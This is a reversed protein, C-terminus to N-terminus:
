VHPVAKAVRASARSKISLVVLLVLGYEILLRSEAVSQVALATMLLIPLLSVATYRSSHGHADIPRDIAFIWSRVTTSVVLAAFVVLGVFGLQLWIDLWANHAHLQRVGSKFILDNFPEVWPAWFSVWGWGFAPRQHALGIVANWIDLRGTLDESKGLAALVVNRALFAIVGLVAVLASLGWYIRARRGPSATRRVLLLAGVLSSIVVIAITITASRTFFTMSAALGLWAFGWARGVSRDALQIGFVILAVLAVFGLLSSNGVIGQIKGGDFVEFLENRSWYLLKPITELSDYDVGPASVLPLVPRRIFVAVVLEFVISLGLVLRLAIGLGRLLQSWDLTIALAAAITVTMWTTLVGLASAGPYFSWAISSTALALFALLPYPLGGISWRARDRVLLALSVAVLLLALIGFGVWGISYRWADGAFLTFLTLVTFASRFSPRDLLSMHVVSGLAPHWEPATNTVHDCRTASGM